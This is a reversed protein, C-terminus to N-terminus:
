NCFLGQKAHKNSLQRVTETKTQKNTEQLDVIGKDM